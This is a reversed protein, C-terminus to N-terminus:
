TTPLTLHTYSVADVSYAMGAVEFGHEKWKVFQALGRCVIEEDDVILVQYIM